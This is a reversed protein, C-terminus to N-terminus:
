AGFAVVVKGRARKTELYALAQPTDESHYTRDILPKVRGGTCLEALESLEAHGQGMSVIMHTNKNLQSDILYHIFGLGHPASAFVLQGDPKLHKRLQAPSYSGITDFILDFPPASLSGITTQKYCITADAGISQALPHNKASSIGTVHAGSTKAIQLAFSGVGGSAGNILVRSNKDLQKYQTIGHLATLAAVGLTSAEPSPLSDPKKFISSEKVVVYEALSGLDNPFVTGFVADGTNFHHAGEGRQEIIGSFDAGLGPKKPKLVGFHLRVLFPDAHVMRWDLPNLSAHQIRVLVEGPGPTPEPIDELKLNELSGYKYYRFAKM